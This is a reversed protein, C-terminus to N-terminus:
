WKVGVAQAMRRFADTLRQGHEDHEAESIEGAYHKCHKSGKRHPFPWGDCMCPRVGHENKIRWEDVRFPSDGRYFGQFGCSECKRVHRPMVKYNDPRRKISQRKGCKKCRVPVAM